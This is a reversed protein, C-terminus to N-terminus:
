ALGANQRWQTTGPSLLGAGSANSAATAAAAQSAPVFMGTPGTGPGIIFADGAPGYVNPGPAPATIAGPIQSLISPSATTAAVGTVENAPPTSGAATGGVPLGGMGTSGGSGGGSGGGGNGWGQDYGAPAGATPTSSTSAAAKAQRWRYIGFALAGGGLAWVWVPAGHFNKTLGTGGKVPPKKVPPKTAPIEAM